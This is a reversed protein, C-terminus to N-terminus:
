PNRLKSLMSEIVQLATDYEKVKVLLHVNELDQEIWQMHKSITM